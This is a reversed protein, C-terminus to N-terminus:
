RPMANARAPGIAWPGCSPQRHLQRSIRPLGARRRPARRLGHHCATIITDHRRPLTDRVLKLIPRQRNTALGDPKTPFIGQPNVHLQEMSMFGSLDDANCCWADVVQQGHTNFVQIAQGKALHVARGRRAPVFQLEATLDGNGRQQGMQGIHDTKKTSTCPDLRMSAARRTWVTM